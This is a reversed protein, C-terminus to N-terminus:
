HCHFWGNMRPSIFIAVADDCTKPDLVDNSRLINMVTRLETSVKLEPDVDTLDSNVASVAILMVVSVCLYAM